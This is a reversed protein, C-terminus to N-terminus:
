DGIEAEGNEAAEEADDSKEEAPKPDELEKVFVNVKKVKIGTMSQVKDIIVAQVKQSVEVINVGFMMVLTLTITAEGDGLEIAINRDYSRKSLMDAIDGVLGQPAFRTVGEIELTYKKVITAIVNNSIQISGIGNDEDIAFEGNANTTQVTVADIAKKDKTEKM